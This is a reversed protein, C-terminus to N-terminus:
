RSSVYGKFNSSSIDLELVLDTPRSKMLPDCFYAKPEWVMKKIFFDQFSLKSTFTTCIRAQRCKSNRIQSTFLVSNEYHSGQDWVTWLVKNKIFRSKKTSVKHTTESNTTPMINRVKTFQLANPRFHLYEQQFGEM